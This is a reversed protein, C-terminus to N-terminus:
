ELGTLQKQETGDAAKMKWIEWKGTRDSQFAIEQADPSWTPKKDDALNNTLNKKNGGDTDMTYIEWNGDRTSTFAIKQGDPSWAPQTDDAPNFTLQKINRGDSDMVFIEWNGNVYSQFAIKDGEPSITPHLDPQGERFTVRTFALTDIDTVYIEGKGDDRDSDFVILKSIEGPIITPTWSPREDCGKPRFSVRTVHKTEPHIIYLNYCAQQDRNSAFALRDGGPTWAPERDVVENSTLRSEELTDVNVLYLEWNHDRNSAFAIRTGDPSWAPEINAVPPNQPETIEPRILTFYIVAGAAIILLIWVIPPQYLVVGKRYRNM